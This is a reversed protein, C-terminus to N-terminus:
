KTVADPQLGPVNLSVSSALETVPATAPGPASEILVSTTISRVIGVTVAEDGVEGVASSVKSYTNVKEFVTDPKAAVSKVTVPVEHSTVLTVPEAALYETSTVRQLSPTVVASVNVALETASAAPFRPGALASLKAPTAIFRPV